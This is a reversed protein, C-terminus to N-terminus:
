LRRSPLSPLSSDRKKGTTKSTYEYTKSLMDDVFKPIGIDSMDVAYNYINLEDVAGM